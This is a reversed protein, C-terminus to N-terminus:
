QLMKTIPHWEDTRVREDDVLHSRLFPHQTMESIDDGERCNWFGKWVCQVFFLVEEVSQNLVGTPNLTGSFVNYTM